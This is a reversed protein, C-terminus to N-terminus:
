PNIKKEPFYGFENFDDGAFYVDRAKVKYKYVKGVDGAEQQAYTKSFTVWDGYNLEKKPSARYITVDADPNNKIKKIVIFSEKYSKDSMNAYYEPHSYVDSPIAGDKSLDYSPSTKSPRHAMGYHPTSSKKNMVPTVTSQDKVKELAAQMEPSQRLTKGTSGSFNQKMVAGQIAGGIESGAIAGLPGLSGVQAGVIAGVTKAFYKGLKGGKVTKGNLTDLYDLVAYHRQLEKNLNEVVVSKTNKEILKKYVFAIKKDAINSEPNLYNANTSKSIKAKQLEELSIRGDPTQKTALGKLESNLRSRAEVLASGTLGSISKQLEAKVVDYPLTVGEQKLAKSVVSEQPALFDQLIKKGQTTDIRGTENVSGQLLDTQATLDKVDVGRKKQAETFKRITANSQELQTLAKLNSKVVQAPLQGVVAKSANKAGKVIAQEAPKNLIVGSDSKLTNRSAYAAIGLSIGAEIAKVPDGTELAKKADQYAQVGQAAGLAINPVKGVVGLPAASTGSAGVEEGFSSTSQAVSLASDRIKEWDPTEKTFLQRFAEAGGGIAGGIAGGLAGVTKGAATSVQKVGPLQTYTEFAENINQATKQIANQRPKFVGAKQGAPTAGSKMPDFLTAGFQTPDFQM